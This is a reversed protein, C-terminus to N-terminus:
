WYDRCSCKGDRFIHLCKSDKLFIERKYVKSALKAITHCEVCMGVSKIMRISKFNSTNILGFAIALKESHIGRNNEVEQSKFIKVDDTMRNLEELKSVFESSLKDGESFVHVKNRVEIWCSDHLIKNNNPNLRTLHNSALKFIQFNRHIRSADLLANWIAFDPEIPMNEIFEIAEGLRGSRGFLEIMAIYHELSPSVEYKETMCAFIEMGENLMKDLSCAKIMGNLTAQNPKFGQDIMQSCLDRACHSNGHLVYGSIISNWSIIDKFQLKSFLVHASTIDGANAYANILANTISTEFQLNNHLVSAHIEKVKALSLLSALDPLISLVTISNPKISNSQMQRLLGLAKDLSGNQLAGSILTNWSAINRNIGEREMEHFLDMAQDEDGHQLYGSMMINWTVVNRNVGHEEMEFFLENAKSCYGAQSYGGIMSNWTYVDKEVIGDFVKEADEIRGCKAYMDVLANSILLNCVSGTKFAYSHLEEGHKLCRMDACASVVSAITMENPEIESMLMTKFYDLAEETKNNQVFGSIMSTWTVVDPLVGSMKMKKILELAHEPYGCQNYSSILINWTVVGPEVNEDVMKELLKLAEEIEGFICYGSIIANWSVRNKTGMKEFFKRALELQGCKAYMALLSNSVHSEETNNLFGSKLAMAHLLRGTEYDCLNSCAQLIKPLLFADPVFGENMMDYFLDVVCEWKQARSYGGIMASWTYLNRRQMENFVRRADDLSGCKAYMSILKTEVFPNEETLLRIANHLKRGNELSDSDICSQLLSIFTKPRIEKISDNELALIAEQINADHSLHYTRKLISDKPIPLSNTPTQAQNKNLHVLIPTPVLIPPKPKM